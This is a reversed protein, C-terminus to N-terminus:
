DAGFHDLLGHADKSGLVRCRFCEVFLFAGAADLALISVVFYFAGLRCTGLLLDLGFTGSCVIRGDVCMIGVMIRFLLCTRSVRTDNMFQAAENENKHIGFEIPWCQARM